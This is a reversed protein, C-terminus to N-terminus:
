DLTSNRNKFFSKFELICKRRVMMLKRKRLNPHLLLMAEAKQIDCSLRDAYYQALSRGGLM